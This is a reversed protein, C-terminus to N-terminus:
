DAADAMEPQVPYSTENLIWRIAAAREECLKLTAANTTFPQRRGNKVVKEFVKALGDLTEIHEEPTTM